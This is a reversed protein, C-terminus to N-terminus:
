ERVVGGCLSRSVFLFFQNSACLGAPRDDQNTAPSLIRLAVSVSHARRSLRSQSGTRSFVLGFRREVAGGHRVAPPLPVPLVLERHVQSSGDGGSRVLPLGAAHEAGHLPRKLAFGYVQVVVRHPPLPAAGRPAAAALPYQVGPVGLPLAGALDPLPRPAALAQLCVISSGAHLSPGRVLLAWMLLHLPHPPM